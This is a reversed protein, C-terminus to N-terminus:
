GLESDNVNMVTMTKIIEDITATIQEEVIRTPYVAEFVLTDSGVGVTLITVMLSTEDIDKCIFRIADTKCGSIPSIGLNVVNSANEWESRMLEQANMDDAYRLLTIHASGSLQYTQIFDGDDFQVNEIMQADQPLNLFLLPRSFNEASATMSVILLCLFLFLITRKSM